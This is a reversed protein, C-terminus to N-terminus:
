IYMHCRLSSLVDALSDIMSSLISLSGTYFVAAAKVLSLLAAISISLVAALNKLKITNNLSSM